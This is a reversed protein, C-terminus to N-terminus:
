RSRLRLSVRFDKTMDFGSKIFINPGLTTRRHVSAKRASRPASTLSSWSRRSSKTRAKFFFCGFAFNEAGVNRRFRCLIVSFTFCHNPHNSSGAIQPFFTTIDTSCTNAHRSCALSNARSAGNTIAGLATTTRAGEGICFAFRAMTPIKLPATPFITVSEERSESSSSSSSSSESPSGNAGSAAKTCYLAALCISAIWDSLIPLDTRHINIM